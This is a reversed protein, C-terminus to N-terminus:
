RAERPLVVFGMSDMSASGFIGIGGDVRFLPREFNDGALSGPQIASDEEEQFFEPVSRILDFWNEDIAYIRIVHRGEYFVAFWPLRLNGDKAEFAPSSGYRDLDDYDDDELLDSDVVIDSNPDLSEISIHYGRVPLPEFQAELLGTQYPVQNEPATFVVDLGDEYQKFVRIVEFSTEDLLVADRIDLRQPTITVASAERGQSRVSLTYMTQPLVLAANPPPLYRGASDPDARYVFTEGGQTIAVEADIVGADERRYVSAANLTERIFLDPLPKDVILLADVVLIGSADPGFFSVPDREAKCGVLVLMCGMVVIVHKM